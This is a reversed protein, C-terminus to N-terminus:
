RAVVARRPLLMNEAVFATVRGCRKRTGLWCIVVAPSASSDHMRSRSQRPLPITVAVKTKMM